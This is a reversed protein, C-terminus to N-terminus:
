LFALKSAHLVTTNYWLPHTPHSPIDIHSPPLYLATLYTCLLHMADSTSLFAKDQIYFWGNFSCRHLIPKYETRVDHQSDKGWVLGQIGGFFKWLTRFLLTYLDLIDKAEEGPESCLSHALQLSQPRRCRRLGIYNWKRTHCINGIWNRTIIISFSLAWIVTGAPSEPLM